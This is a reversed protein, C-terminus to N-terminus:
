QIPPGSGRKGGGAGKAHEGPKGNGTPRVALGDAPIVEVKAGERLRDVGRTVVRDGLKLGDKILTRDRHTAGTAINRLSVTSDDNLVYAYAGKAGRQIATAPAVTAGAQKDVLLKAIVFQNPFLAGDPNPFEAKLKLTGSTLDIQNDTTILKGFGLSVKM